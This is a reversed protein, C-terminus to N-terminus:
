SDGNRVTDQQEAPYVYEIVDKSRVMSVCRKASHSYGIATATLSVTCLLGSVLNWGHLIWPAMPETKAQRTTNCMRLLYSWSCISATGVALLPRVTMACMSLPTISHVHHDHTNMCCLLQTPSSQSKLNFNYLWILIGHKIFWQSLLLLRLARRFNECTANYQPEENELWKDQLKYYDCALIPEWYLILYHSWSRTWVREVRAVTARIEV